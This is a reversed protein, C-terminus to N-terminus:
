FETRGRERGEGYVGRGEGYVGGGMSRGKGWGRLVTQVINRWNVIKELTM